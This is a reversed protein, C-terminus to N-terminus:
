QLAPLFQQTKEPLIRVVSQRTQQWFASLLLLSGGIFIGTMAMSYSVFGYNELLGSMAYVVYVLASVMIARRDVIISILALVTYLALVIIATSYGTVGEFIGLTSFIPHVILPASLLHLWFAIDSNRTERKPDRSDWYMAFSFTILGAVALYPQYFYRIEPFYGFLMGFVGLFLSVMAAAITVPVRFRQWHVWAGAVTILGAAIFQYQSVYEASEIMTIPIAFLGALFSLLLGIAPLAMRKRKVFVEALGWSGAALVFAGLVPLTEYGLWTLSVLLLASAIVVFVDNFGSLLRFNEEDVQHISRSQAFYQRFEKVKDPTFIGKSVAENLDEDSYM